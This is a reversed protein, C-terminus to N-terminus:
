PKRRLANRQAELSARQTATLKVTALPDAALSSLTPSPCEHRPWPTSGVVGAMYTAGCGKCTMLIASM